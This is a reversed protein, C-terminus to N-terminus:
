ENQNWLNKWATKVSGKGQIKVPKGPPPPVLKKKNKRHILKAITREPFHINRQTEFDKSTSGPEQAIHSSGTRPDPSSAKPKLQEGEITLPLTKSNAIDVPSEYDQNRSSDSFTNTEQKSSNNLLTNETRKRVESSLAELKLFKEYPVLVVKRM